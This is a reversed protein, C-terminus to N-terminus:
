LMIPRLDLCCSTPTTAQSQVGGYLGGKFVRMIRILIQISSCFAFGKSSPGHACGKQFLSSEFGSENSTPEFSKLVSDLNFELWAPDPFEIRNEAAPKGTPREHFQAARSRGPPRAQGERQKRLRRFTLLRARENIDGIRKVRQGERSRSHVKRPQKPNTAALGPVSSLIELRRRVKTPHAFFYSFSAAVTGIGLLWHLYMTPPMRTFQHAADLVCNRRYDSLLSNDCLRRLDVDSSAASTFLDLPVSFKRAPANPGWTRQRQRAFWGWGRLHAV